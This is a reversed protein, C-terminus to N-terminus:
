ENEDNAEWVQNSKLVCILRTENLLNCDLRILCNEFKDSKIIM